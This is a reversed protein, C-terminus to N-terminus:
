DDAIGSLNQPQGHIDPQGNVAGKTELSVSGLDIIQDTADHTNRDMNTEMKNTVPIAVILSPALLM